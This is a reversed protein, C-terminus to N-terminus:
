EFLADVFDVPNFPQLDNIGEGVGILKVPIGLESKVAIVVGGKATGDLKTLVIGSIDAAEKFLKAQSIANQGTTGDVVLLVERNSNEYEKDVVRFIKKLEEMLNKKNQLRGATDCIIVDTKRTKAAQIADFIVAAPDSGEQQKILDVGVRDAWVQLQDIAAARFTDGAALLVKKGQKNYMNAIKGISTTKGAGNVGVVLIISPGDGVNIEVEESTGMIEVLKEKLLDKLESAETLGREKAATRLSDIIKLTTEVGVDSTILIEELEELLDEDIKKYSKILKDIKETIGSRTKGLGKKLKSFFSEKPQEEIEEINEAKETRNPENTKEEFELNLEQLGEIEEMEEIEEELKEEVIEQFKEIEELELEEIVEEDDYNQDEPLRDRESVRDKDEEKSGFLKKLMNKIM